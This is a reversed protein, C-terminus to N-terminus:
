FWPLLDGYGWILTGLVAIFPIAFHSELVHFQRLDIDDEHENGSRFWDIWGYLAGSVLVILAGGRGFNLGDGTEFAWIYHAIIIILTLAYGILPSIFDVTKRKMWPHTDHHDWERIIKLSHRFQMRGHNPIKDSM